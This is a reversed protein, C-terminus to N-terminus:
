YESTYRWGYRSAFFTGNVFLFDVVYSSEWSGLSFLMREGKPAVCPHSLFAFHGLNLDSDAIVVFRDTLLRNNPLPM